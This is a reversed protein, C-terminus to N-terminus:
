LLLRCVLYALSQLESTHEESRLVGVYVHFAAAPAVCYRRHTSSLEPPRMRVVYVAACTPQALPVPVHETVGLTTSAEPAPWHHTTVPLADPLPGHLLPIVNVAGYCATVRAEGADFVAPTVVKADEPECGARVAPMGPPSVMFRKSSARSSKAAGACAALTFSKPATPSPTVFSVAATCAAM